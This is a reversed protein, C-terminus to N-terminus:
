KYLAQEEFSKTVTIIGAHSTPFNAGTLVGQVCAFLDPDKQGGPPAKVGMLHGQQDIGVEVSIKQHPNKRQARAAEVCRAMEVVKADIAADILSTAEAPTSAFPREPLAAEPVAADHVAARAAGGDQLDPSSSAPGTSALAGAPSVSEAPADVKGAGGCAGCVVALTWAYSKMRHMM